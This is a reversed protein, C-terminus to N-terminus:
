ENFSWSYLEQVDQIGISVGKQTCSHCLSELHGSPCHSGNGGCSMGFLMSAVLKTQNSQIVTYNWFTTIGWSLESPLSRKVMRLVMDLRQIDDYLYNNTRWNGIAVGVFAGVFSVVTM